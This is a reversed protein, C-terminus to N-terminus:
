DVELIKPKAGHAAKGSDRLGLTIDNSLWDRSVGLISKQQWADLGEVVDRVHEKVLSDEDAFEVYKLVIIVEALSEGAFGFGLRTFGVERGTEDAADLARIISMIVLVASRRLIAKEPGKELKLIALVCDVATSTVAVGVGGINTEIATSLISLASSRIRVDEERGTDAWGEVTKTIANNLEDVDDQDEIGNNDDPEEGGWAEAVEKLVKAAKQKERERKKLTKVKNGRRSAVTIMSEGVMSAVEGLFLQGLQKVTNDLVQGLHLRMNLTSEEEVDTYKEVLKSVITKPHNAALQELARIASLYIYEDEDQLLSILLIATSPVDIVPSVEATLNTLALLGQGRVPTSEDSLNQLAARYRNDEDARPDTRRSSSNQPSVDLGGCQLRLLLLVNSASDTLSTDLLTHSRALYELSLQISAVIDSNSDVLTGSSTTLLMSLLSMAASVPSESGLEGDIEGDNSAIDALASLSPNLRRARREVSQKHEVVFAALLPEVLKLMGEFSSSIEDKFVELLRHTIKISALTEMSSRMPSPNPDFPEPTGRSRDGLWRQCAQTFVEGVQDHTLVAATLLTVYQEVRDDIMENLVLMDQSSSAGMGREAIEIGGDLSQRFSWHAPGDWLINQGLFVLQANTVSVKMYIALIQHVQETVTSKHVQAAFCLLGWLPLLIPVVLRKTLGPNAHYQVLASVRDLAVKLELDSAFRQEQPNIADHIPKVFLNWGITGPSGIARKSLIGNGIICSAIRRNDSSKDDLMELLQPALASFYAEPIMQSPVSTLLKSTRGLAATGLKGSDVGAIFDITQRVGGQRLPLTSLRKSIVSRFWEPSPLKLLSTLQPLLTAVSQHEILNDHISAFHQRDAVQIPKPSFALEVTASILDVSARERVCSALGNDSMSIPVVRDVIVMLLAGPDEVPFDVVRSTSVPPGVGPSVSVRIGENVVLDVIANVVKQRRQDALPDPLPSDRPSSSEHLGELLQLAQQILELRGHASTPNALLGKAETLTDM